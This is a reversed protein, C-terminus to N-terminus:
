GWISPDGSSDAAGDWQEVLRVKTPGDLTVEDLGDRGPCLPPETSTRCGPSFTQWCIPM